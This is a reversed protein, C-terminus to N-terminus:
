SAGAKAKIFAKRGASVADTVQDQSEEIWDGVQQSTERVKSNVTDIGDKCKVSIWKRTDEGSQPAFLLGVVAGIGVGAMLWTLMSLPSGSQVKMNVDGDQTKM